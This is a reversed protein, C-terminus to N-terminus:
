EQWRCAWQSSHQALKRESILSAELADVILERRLKTSQSCGLDSLLTTCKAEDGDLHLKAIQCLVERRRGRHRRWDGHQIAEAQDCGAVLNYTWAQRIRGEGVGVQCLTRRYLPTRAGFGPFGELRDIEKLAQEINRLRFFDGQVLTESVGGEVMGPFAGCNLLRGWSEALLACKLGHREILGFNREGRMLTGYCFLADLASQKEGKAAALLHCTPLDYQDLGRRVIKVYEPTPKVYDKRLRPVVAYTQASVENGQEDLVVVSQRQYNGPAGEKTDLAKWGVASKVEFLVGPVVCGTRPVIDLVGGSRKSSMRTFRIEHDPLNAIQRFQLSDPNYGREECSRHFDAQNLNSGYAFYLERSM